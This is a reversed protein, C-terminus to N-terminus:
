LSRQSLNRPYLTSSKRAFLWSRLAMRMATNRQCARSSGRKFDQDMHQSLIEAPRQGSLIRL